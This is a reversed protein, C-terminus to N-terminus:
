LFESTKMKRTAIIKSGNDALAPRGGTSPKVLIKAGSVMPGPLTEVSIKVM